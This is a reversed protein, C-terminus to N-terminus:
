PAHTAALLAAVQHAPAPGTLWARLAAVGAAGAAVAQPANRPEVGGLAVLPLGLRAAEALAPLGLPAGFARKSPTDWIPSFTAYDAGGARARAVEAASHCSVGVLAAGGLLRRAEAPSPGAAPLHVGDAGAALAVDLRDNVLLRAGHARCVALLARALTLLAAGGLDKERLHVAVRGPPLGDLAVELRMPLDAALRRDTILHVEPLAM